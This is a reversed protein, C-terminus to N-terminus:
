KLEAGRNNTDTLFIEVPYKEGWSERLKAVLEQAASRGEVLGFVTPGFSSMGSGAAGNRRLFYILEKVIPDQLAIEYRKFGIEQLKSIASGFESIRREIVAPIVGMLVHRAVKGVEEASIPCHKRFAAIEQDGHLGKRIRPVVIAFFWDEPLPARFVVPAPSAKSASSPLFDRKQGDLGFSHGCDLVFGGSEFAAVGIGSTGGRGVIPALSRADVTINNLRAAAIAVALATQTGSGLGVHTPISERIEFRARIRFGFHQELSTVTRQARQTEDGYIFLERDRSAVLHLSPANLAVGIGGDIRGLEGNLDILAFHLRSPTRIEIKDM